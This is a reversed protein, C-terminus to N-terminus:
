AMGRAKPARGRLAAEVKKRVMLRARHLRMKVATEPLGLSEAVERSTLQEMDRMVLVIRYHPPVSEIAERLIDAIEARQLEEDPMSSVDPIEVPRGVASAGQRREPMLDDLSIERDPEFKGRRRQMLCANAAVRFIWARLAGPERLDKLSTYAKLLTEQLVDRADERKGCMRVGFGFIRDGFRDVFHEFAGPEDRRIRDLLDIDGTAQDM